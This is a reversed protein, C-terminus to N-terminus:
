RAVNEIDLSETMIGRVDETLFSLDDDVIEVLNGVSVLGNIKLLQEIAECETFHPVFGDWPRCGNDANRYNTWDERQCIIGKKKKRVPGEGGYVRKAFNCETLGKTAQFIWVLRDLKSRREIAQVV